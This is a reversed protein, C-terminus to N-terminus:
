ASEHKAEEPKEPEPAPALAAAIEEDLVRELQAIAVRSMYGEPGPVARKRAGALDVLRDKAIYRLALERAARLEGEREALTAEAQVLAAHLTDAARKWGAIDEGDLKVAGSGALSQDALEQCLQDIKAKAEAFEARLRMNLVAVDHRFQKAEDIEARLADRQRHAVFLQDSLEISAQREEMYEAHKKKFEEFLKARLAVIEDAAEAGISLDDHEARALSRLNEILDSM